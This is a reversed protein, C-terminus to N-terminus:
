HFLFALLSLRSTTSLPYLLFLLLTLRLTVPSPNYKKKEPDGNVLNKKDGLSSVATVSEGLRGARNKPWDCRRSLGM